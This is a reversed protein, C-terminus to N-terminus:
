VGGEKEAQKPQGYCKDCAPAGFEGTGDPVRRGDDDLDVYKKWFGIEGCRFCTLELPWLEIVKIDTM